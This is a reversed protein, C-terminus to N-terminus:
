ENLQSIYEIICRKAWMNQYAAICCLQELCLFTTLLPTRYEFKQGHIIFIDGRDAKPSIDYYWAVACM